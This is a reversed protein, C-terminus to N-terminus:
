SSDIVLWGWAVLVFCWVAVCVGVIGTAARRWSMRGAAGVVWGVRRGCCGGCCWSGRWGEGLVGVQCCGVEGFWFVDGVVGVVGGLWWWRARRRVGGRGVVSERRRGRSRFM